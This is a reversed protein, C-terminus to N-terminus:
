TAMPGFRVTALIAEIAGLLRDQRNMDGAIDARVEFWRDPFDPPSLQWWAVSQESGRNLRFAAPADGIMRGTLGAPLRQIPDPEPPTGESWATVIVSAGGTPLDKDALACYADFTTCFTPDDIAANTLHVVVRNAAAPDDEGHAITWGSPYQFSLDETEFTQTARGFPPPTPEAAWPAAIVIMAGAPLVGAGAIVAVAFLGSDRRSRPLSPDPASRRERVPASAVETPRRVPHAADWTARRAPDSLTHWADNIRAMARASEGSTPGTADPHSRKALRRYARAIELRTATRAVGLVAYPDLESV